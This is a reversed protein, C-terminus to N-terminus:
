YIRIMHYVTYGHLLVLLFVRMFPKYPHLFAQLSRLFVPKIQVGESVKRFGGQMAVRCQWGATGGQMAEAEAIAAEFEKIREEEKFHQLNIM